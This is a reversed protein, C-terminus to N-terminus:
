QVRATLASMLMRAWVPTWRPSIANASGFRIAQHGKKAALSEIGYAPPAWSWEAIGNRSCRPYM